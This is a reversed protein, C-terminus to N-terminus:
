LPKSSVKKGLDKILLPPLVQKRRFKPVTLQDSDINLLKEDM